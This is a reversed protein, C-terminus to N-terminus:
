ANYGQSISDGSVALVLKEKTRLRAV